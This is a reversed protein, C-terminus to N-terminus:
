SKATESRHKRMSAVQRINTSSRSKRLTNNTQFIHAAHESQFREYLEFATEGALIGAPLSENMYLENAGPDGTATIGVHRADYMFIPYNFRERLLQRSEDVIQNERETLFAQKEKNVVKRLNASQAASIRADYASVERDIERQHKVRIDAESQKRTADFHIQQDKTFRQWFFLSAKVTAGTSVFTEEPLSVIARVYGRNECFERVYQLSPNNLIGDPLVIGMRGGPKLLNICREIFLIETRIKGIKGQQARGRKPLTFLAAIPQGQSAKTRAQSQVYLDGFMEKYRNFADREVAVDQPQVKDSPEVSAGFPPNTLIVDFRGEFIGNVNLFGNHHHVGGHGDGHMIMNMKSTRAMRDNADTGYICRNSLRWLRSGENRLELEEQINLWKARLVSARKADSLGKRKVDEKLMRYEIDTSELIHQRVIQFFRILFGGSGSAPDCIVDGERPDVMKIMFEVVSRPTFFQGIEGRFTKGLFREFAIGKIDASTDSLNYPELRRVIERGTAPKLNISEDEGFIEDTRFHRKTREFLDNLPDDGLQEELYESSFVNKRVRRDKLEREVWTKVFLIKAIEDFAAAPDLHDRNRIVNHCEHLLTAFENERFTRLQELLKEVTERSDGMHPIDAVERSPAAGDVRWFKTERANRTVFFPADVARAYSDGTEYEGIEISASNPKCQVVILPSREKIRDELSAWVAFDARAASSGKGIAIPNDEIQDVAYGYDNVLVILYQHRVAEEPTEILWKKRVHSWIKGRERRVNIPGAGRATPLGQTNTHSKNRIRSM